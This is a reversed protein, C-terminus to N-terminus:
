TIRGMTILLLILTLIVILVMFIMMVNPIGLASIGAREDRLM